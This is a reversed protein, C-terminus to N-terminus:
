VNANVWAELDALGLAGVTVAKKEGKELLLITPISMVLFRRALEPEEDVNVKGIKVKGPNETEFQDLIPAFGSCPGCWAAWFDLLVPKDSKVVEEEFNKSTVHIM